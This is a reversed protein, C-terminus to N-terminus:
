RPRTVIAIILTCDDRRMAGASRASEVLETLEHPKRISCLQEFASHDDKEQHRLLWEGLADTMCLLIRYGDGPYSWEVRKWHGDDSSTLAPSMDVRSALLVPKRRFDESSAYPSSALICDGDSWVALSDGLSTVRVNFSQPNDQAILATAFSGREYAAAKSWSLSRQDHLQSYADICSALGEDTLDEVLLRDVLLGAWSRADFSESAGDSLVIRGGASDMRYADENDEPADVHKAVSGSFLINLPM